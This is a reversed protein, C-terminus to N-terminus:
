EENTMKWKRFKSEGLSRRWPDEIRRVFSVSMFAWDDRECAM